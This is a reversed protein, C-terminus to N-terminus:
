PRGANQVGQYKQPIQASVINETIWYTLDFLESVNVTNEERLCLAKSV